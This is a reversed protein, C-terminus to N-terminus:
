DEFRARVSPVLIGVLGRLSARTVVWFDFYDRWLTIKSDYVEFSGCVWFQARYGGFSIADTRETMVSHGDAAIRHIRVDFGLRRRYYARAGKEFRAKGRITPLSVNEYVIDDAVLEVARDPDDNALATLFERVVAVPSDHAAVDVDREPSTSV